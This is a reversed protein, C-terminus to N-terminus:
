SRVGLKAHHAGNSQSWDRRGFRLKPWSLVWQTTQESAQQQRTPCSRGQNCKHNCPACM